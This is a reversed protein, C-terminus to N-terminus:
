LFERAKRRFAHCDRLWQRYEGVSGIKEGYYDPVPNSFSQSSSDVRNEIVHKLFEKTKKNYDALNSKQRMKFITTGFIPGLLYGFAGSALLGASVVVLPDFGMITQMPDIEMTSLYAWSANSTLLATVVSSGLNIRREHKRLQFFDTWTFVDKSNTETQGNTNLKQDSLRPRFVSLQRCIIRGSSKNAVLMSSLM